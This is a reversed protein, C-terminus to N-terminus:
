KRQEFDRRQAPDKPDIEGQVPMVAEKQEAPTVKPLSPDVNAKPPGKPLEPVAVRPEPKDCAVMSVSGIVMVLVLTLAERKV